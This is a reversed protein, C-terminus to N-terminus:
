SGFGIKKGKGDLGTDYNEYFDALVERSVDDAISAYDTETNIKFYVKGFQKLDLEMHVYQDPTRNTCYAFTFDVLLGLQLLRHITYMHYQTREGNILNGVLDRFEVKVTNHYNNEKILM